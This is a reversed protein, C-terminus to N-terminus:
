LLEEPGFSQDNPIFYTGDNNLPTVIEFVASNSGYNNNLYSLIVKVQTGQLYGTLATSIMWNVIQTIGEAMHRHIEGVIYITGVWALIGEQM